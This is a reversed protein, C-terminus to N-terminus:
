LAELCRRIWPLLVEFPRSEGELAAIITDYGDRTETKLCWGNMRLFTDTGFFAVRKNGDTFPHNVLLSEFLAAAMEALDAYYGTQPRFLASELAGADALEGAGGFAAVVREHIAVAEDVSLYRVRENPL